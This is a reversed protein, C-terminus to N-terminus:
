KKKRKFTLSKNKKNDQRSRKDKKNQKNNYQKQHNNNTRIDKKKKSSGNLKNINAKTQKNNSNILNKDKILEIKSKTMSEINKIRDLDKKEFFTIALGKKGIRGTRGIRHVYSEDDDPLAYNIVYKLDNVDIGRAAVNTSVLIDVDGDKFRKMARTRSNQKRDSHLCEVSYKLHSLKYTIYKTEHKTRTFIIIQENRYKNILDLLLDLKNDRHVLYGIQQICETVSVKSKVDVSHYKNNMIEDIVPKIKKSITASFLLTQSRSEMLKIIKRIDKIFGMDFMEDAEDLVLIDINKLDLHKNKSLDLIRGPTGIIIDQGKALMKIQRDYGVGGFFIDTKIDTGKIYNKTNEYIQNSLDRTPSIVLCKLKRNELIRSIIPSIFAVTKGSGTQAKAVVNDGKLIKPIAEIQIETPEKLGLRSLNEIIRPNLGLSKFNM